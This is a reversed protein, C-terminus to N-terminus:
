NTPSLLNMISFSPDFAPYASNLIAELVPRDIHRVLHSTTFILSIIINPFQAFVPHQTDFIVEM